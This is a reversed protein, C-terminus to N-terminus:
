LKGDMMDKTINEVTRMDMCVVCPVNDIGYRKDLMRLNELSLITMRRVVIEQTEPHEISRTTLFYM